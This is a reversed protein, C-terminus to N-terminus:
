YLDGLGLVRRLLGSESLTVVLFREFLSESDGGGCFTALTPAFPRLFTSFLPAAKFFGVAADFSTTFFTAFFATAEITAEFFFVTTRFTSFVVFLDDADDDDEVVLLLALSVFEEVAFPFFFGSFTTADFTLEAFGLLTTLTFDLTFGFVFILAFRIADRFAFAIRSALKLKSGESFFCRLGAGCLEEDVEVDVVVGFVFDVADM